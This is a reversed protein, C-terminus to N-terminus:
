RAPGEPHGSGDWHEDLARIANATPEPLELMRAIEAGRECRTGILERTVEEERTIAHMRRVKSLPSAGPEISRWTYLALSRTRSWDVRKM